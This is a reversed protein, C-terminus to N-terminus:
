EFLRRNYNNQENPVVIVTAACGSLMAKADSLKGEALRLAEAASAGAISSSALSTAAARANRIFEFIVMRPDCRHVAHADM